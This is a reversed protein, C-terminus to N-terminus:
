KSLNWFEMSLGNRDINLRYSETQFIPIYEIKNNSCTPCRQFYDLDGALYSACWFCSNCILLNANEYRRIMDSKQNQKIRGMIRTNM